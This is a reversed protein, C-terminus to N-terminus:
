RSAQYYIIPITVLFQTKILGPNVLSLSLAKEIDIFVFYFSGLM